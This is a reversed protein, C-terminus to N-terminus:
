VVMKLIEVCKWWGDQKWSLWVRREFSSGVEIVRPKGNNLLTQWGFKYCARVKGVETSSFSRQSQYSEPILLVGIICCYSSALFGTAVGEKEKSHPVKIFQKVFVSFDSGLDQAEVDGAAVFRVGDWHGTKRM